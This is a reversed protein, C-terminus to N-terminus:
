ESQPMIKEYFLMYPTMNQLVQDANPMEHLLNDNCFLWKEEDIRKAAIYHGFVPSGRHEIVSCLKYKLEIDFTCCKEGDVGDELNNLDLLEPFDIQNLRMIQNGYADYTLRNFHICLTKPPKIVLKKKRIIVKKTAIQHESKNGTREKFKKFKKAFEEQDIDETKYM